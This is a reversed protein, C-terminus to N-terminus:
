FSPTNQTTGFGHESGLHRRHAGEECASSSAFFAALTTISWRRFSGDRAPTVSSTM